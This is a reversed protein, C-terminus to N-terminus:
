EESEKILEKNQHINGIVEIQSIYKKLSDFGENIAIQRNEYIFERIECGLVDSYYLDIIKDKIAKEIDYLDYKNKNNFCGSLVYKGNFFTVVSRQIELYVEHVGWNLQPEVGFFGVADGHQEFLSCHYVIDGEYIKTGNKDVLGTFQMLELRDGFLWDERLETVRSPTDLNVYLGDKRFDIRYVQFMQKSQKDWARFEIPRNMM